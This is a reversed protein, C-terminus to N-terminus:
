SDCQDSHYMGVMANVNPVLVINVSGVHVSMACSLTLM